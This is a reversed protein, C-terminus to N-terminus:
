IKGIKYKNIKRYITSKSIGLEKAVQGKGEDTWGYKQLTKLILEKEMTELLNGSSYRDKLRDPLNEYTIIATDEMNMAYEIVNQLERVNGPWRYQMFLSRVDESLGEVCKGIHKNYRRIFHQVLVMIDQNRERLSPIDLQIVSLRHFLDERFRGDEVMGELNKNSAAVVRIDIPLPKEAGLPEIERNELVRLLKQQMYLPMNEVEDLLITGRNAM